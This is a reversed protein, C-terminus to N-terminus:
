PRHRRAVRPVFRALREFVLPMAMLQVLMRTCKCELTESSEDLRGCAPPGCAMSVAAATKTIKRRTRRITTNTTIATLLMNM